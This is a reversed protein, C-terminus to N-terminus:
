RALLLRWSVPYGLERLPLFRVRGALLDEVARRSVRLSTPLAARDM